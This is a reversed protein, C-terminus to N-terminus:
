CVSTEIEGLRFGNRQYNRNVKTAPVPIRGVTEERLNYCLITLYIHYAGGNGGCSLSSFQGCGILKIIIAHGKVPPFRCARLVGKEALSLLCPICVKAEIFMVNTQSEEVGYEKMVWVAQGGSEVMFLASFCGDIEGLERHAESTPVPIRGERLNYCLYTRQRVCRWDRELYETWSICVAWHVNGNFLTGRKRYFELHDEKRLDLTTSKYSHSGVYPRILHM